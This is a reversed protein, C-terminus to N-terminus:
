NTLEIKSVFSEKGNSIKYTSEMCKGDEISQKLRKVLRLDGAKAQYIDTNNGCAGGSSFISIEKAVIDIKTESDFLTYPKGILENGESDYVIFETRGRQGKGPLAVLSDKKGDFNIDFLFSSMSPYGLRGNTLSFDKVEFEANYPCFYKKAEDLKLSELESLNPTLRESSCDVEKNKAKEWLKEMPPQGENYRAEKELCRIMQGNKLYSRQETIVHSSGPTFDDKQFIFILDGEWYYHQRTRCGHEGCSIHKLYSLAGKKNYKRELEDESRGDDCQTKFPVTKYDTAESIIKYKDRIFEIDSAISSPEATKPEENTSQQTNNAHSDSSTSSQKCSSMVISIFLLLLVKSKM